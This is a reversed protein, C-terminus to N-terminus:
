KKKRGGGRKPISKVEPEPETQPMRSSYFDLGKPTLTYAGDSKAVYGAGNLNRYRGLLQGRSKGLSDALAMFSPTEGQANLEGLRSIIEEDQATLNYTEFNRPAKKREIWGERTKTVLVKDRGQMVYNRTRGGETKESKVEGEIMDGTALIIKDVKKEKKPQPAADEASATESPQAEATAGPLHSKLNELVSSAAGTAGIGSLIKALSSFLGHVGEVIVGHGPSRQQDQEM